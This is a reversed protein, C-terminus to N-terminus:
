GGAQMPPPVKRYAENLTLIMRILFQVMMLYFGIPIIVEIVVVPLNFFTRTETDLALFSISAKGLFFCIVASFLDTFARFWTQNRSSLFRTLIDIHFHKVERTALIGGLMGVWLVLNRAAIDAWMVGSNFFYRLFVQMIALGAMGLFLIVLSFNVVRTIATDIGQIIKM